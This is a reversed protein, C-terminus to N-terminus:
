VMQAAIKALEDAKANHISYWDQGGTHAAVHKFTVHREALLKDIETVLDLNLVHEGDAKRWGKKKWSTIWKTATNILLQSDTYFYLPKRGTPDIIKSEKIAFILAMYEARNNTVPHIETKVLKCQMTHKPHHPFVCAYGASADSCGNKLCSGDSFCVIDDPAHPDTSKDEIPKLPDVSTIGLQGLILSGRGKIFTVADNRSGFKRYCAGDFGDVQKKCEAWSDFIGTSRGRAVAYYFTEGM